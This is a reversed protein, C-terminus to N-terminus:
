VTHHIYDKLQERLLKLAKGMHKEVAKVSIDLTHAIQAYSMEEFRSLSFVLRCKPPLREIAAQILQETEQYSLAADTESSSWQNEHIDALPTNPNTKELYNLATNIAARYLYSKVSQERDLSARNHWVKVFVDQVIDEAIASSRVMKYVTKCLPAYYARFHQEIFSEDSSYPDPSPSTAAGPPKLRRSSQTLWYYVKWLSDPWTTSTTLM